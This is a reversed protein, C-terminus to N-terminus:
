KDLSMGCIHVNVSEVPIGATSEIAAAVANQIAAGVENVAYGISVTVFIEASFVGEEVHVKVGKSLLKKGFLEAIDKVPSLSMGAVGDVEMVACAAITALVEESISISGNDDPHTIYEKNEAM